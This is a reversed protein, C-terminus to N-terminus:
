LTLWRDSVLVCYPLCRKPLSIDSVWECCFLVEPQPLSGSTSAMMAMALQNEFELDGRRKRENAPEDAQGAECAAVIPQSPGGEQDVAPEGKFPSEVATSRKKARTRRPSTEPVAIAPAQFDADAAKPKASGGGAKGSGVFRFLKM